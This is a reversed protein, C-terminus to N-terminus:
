QATMVDAIAARVIHRDGQVEARSFTAKPNATLFEWAEQQFGDLQRDKRNPFPYKSYLKLTTDRQALLDSLDQIMTAPLPIANPNTQHDVAATMTGQKVVKAVVRETYYGRITKFQEAIAQGKAISEAIANSEIIRPIILWTAAIAGALAFCVPLVLR